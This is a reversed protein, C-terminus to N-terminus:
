KLEMQLQWAEINFTPDLSNLMLDIEEDSFVTLDTDVFNDFTNYVKSMRIYYGPKSTATAPWMVFQEDNIFVRPEDGIAVWGQSPYCTRRLLYIVAKIKIEKDM